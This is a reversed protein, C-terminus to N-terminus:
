RCAIQPVQQMYMITVASKGVAGGGLVAVKLLTAGNVDAPAADAKSAAAPQKPSRADATAADSRPSAVPKVNRPSAAPIRGSPPSASKNPPPSERHAFEKPEYRSDTRFVATDQADDGNRSFAESTPIAM